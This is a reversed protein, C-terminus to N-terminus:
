EPGRRNCSPRADGGFRRVLGSGVESGCDEVGCHIGCQVLM